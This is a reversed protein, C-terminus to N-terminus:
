NKGLLDVFAVAFVVALSKWRNKLFLEDETNEKVDELRLSYDTEKRPTTADNSNITLQQFDKENSEDDSHKQESDSWMRLSTNQKPLSEGIM